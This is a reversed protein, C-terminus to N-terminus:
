PSALTAEEYDIAIRTKCRSCLYMRHRMVLDPLAQLVSKKGQEYCTACIHHPPDSATMANKLAYAFNGM